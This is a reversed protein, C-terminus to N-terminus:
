EDVIEAEVVDSDEQLAPIAALMADRHDRERDLVARLQQEPSLSHYGPPLPPPAISPVQLALQQHVGVARLYDESLVPVVPPVDASTLRRYSEGVQRRERVAAIVASMDRVILGTDPDTVTKGIATTKAPPSAIIGALVSDM